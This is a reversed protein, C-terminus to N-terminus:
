LFIGERMGEGQFMWRRGLGLETGFGGQCEWDRRRLRILVLLSLSAKRQEGSTGQPHSTERGWRSARSPLSRLLRRSLM